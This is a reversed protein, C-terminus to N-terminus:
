KSMKQELTDGRFFEDLESAADSQMIQRIRSAADRRPMGKSLMDKFQKVYEGRGYPSLISRSGGTKKLLSGKAKKPPKM